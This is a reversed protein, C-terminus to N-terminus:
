VLESLMDDVTNQVLCEVALESLMDNLVDNYMRAADVTGDRRYKTVNGWTADPIITRVLRVDATKKESARRDKETKHAWKAFEELSLTTRMEEYKRARKEDDRIKQAELVDPRLNIEQFRRKHFGPNLAEERAAQAKGSERQKEVVDPRNMAEKTGARWEERTKESANAWHAKGNERSKELVEPRNHSEKNSARWAKRTEDSANAWRKMNSLSLM